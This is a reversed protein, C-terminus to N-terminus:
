ASESVEQLYVKTQLFPRFGRWLILSAVLLTVPAVITLSYRLARDDRFVFDTVLAVSTAGLGQGILSTCVLFMATAQARMQNPVIEQVAAAAVGTSLGRFFMAPITFIIALLATPMLPFILCSVMMGVAAATVLRLNANGSGARALRDALYGGVLTGGTSFITIITGLVLGARQPSWGYTRILFTPTWANVGLIAMVFLSRGLYVSVFTSRHARMYSLIQGLSLRTAPETQTEDAVLRAVERRAPERVTLTLLAILLGPLGVVILVMQWPRVTGVLPLYYASRTSVLGIVVAGIILSMGTGLYAGMMYFSIATTRHQRPFYDSILSLATPRNGGQGLGVGVRALFLQGYSQALGCAATMLSWITILVALIVRRSKTDALRGIPIGIVTFLLAFSLGLLFSMQTDSLGLDQRVPEVLLNLVRRDVFASILALNLVGVVYWAYAPQPYASEKSSVAQATTITPQTNM